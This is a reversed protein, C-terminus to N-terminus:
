KERRFGGLRLLTPFTVDVAEHVGGLILDVADADVGAVPLRARLVIDGARDVAFWAPYAAHNRALCYHYTAERRTRPSPLVFAEVAVTRDGVEFWVTTYDRARQKIRVGWRGEYEGAWVVDSGPDAALAATVRQVEALM